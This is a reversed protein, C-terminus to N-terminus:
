GLLYIIPENDAVPDYVTAVEDGDEDRHVTVKCRSLFPGAVVAGKEDVVTPQQGLPIDILNATKDICMGQLDSDTTVIDVYEGGLQQFVIVDLADFEVPFPTLQGHLGDPGIIEM